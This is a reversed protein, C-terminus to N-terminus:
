PNGMFGVKPNEKTSLWFGRQFRGFVQKRQQTAYVGHESFFDVSKGL